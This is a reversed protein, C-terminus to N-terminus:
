QAPPDRLPQGNDADGASAFPRLAGMAIAIEELHDSFRRLSDVERLERMDPCVRQIEQDLERWNDDNPNYKLDHVCKNRLRNITRLVQVAAGDVIKHAECLSVLLSFSVGRDRFLPNPDPVVVQLCEVLLHELWLHVSVIHMKGMTQGMVFEDFNSKPKCDM